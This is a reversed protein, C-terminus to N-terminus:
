LTKQQRQPRFREFQGAQTIVSSINQSFIGTSKAVDSAAKDIALFNKVFKSGIAIFATAAIVLAGIGTAAIAFGLRFFGATTKRLSAPVKEGTIEEFNRFTGVATRLAKNDFAKYYSKVKATIAKFSRSTSETVSQVRETFFLINTLSKGLADQILTFDALKETADKTSEAVNKQSKAFKENSETRKEQAATAEKNARTEAELQKISAADTRAAASAQIVIPKKNNNEEAM